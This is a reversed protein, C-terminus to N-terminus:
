FLTIKFHPTPPCFAPSSSPLLIWTMSPGLYWLIIIITDPFGVACHEVSSADWVDGLDTCHLWELIRGVVQTLIWLGSRKWGPSSQVTSPPLGSLAELFASRIRPPSEQKPHPPLVVQPPKADVPGNEGQSLVNRRCLLFGTGTRLISSNEVYVAKLSLSV